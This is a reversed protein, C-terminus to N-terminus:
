TLDRGGCEGWSNLGDLEEICSHRVLDRDSKTFYVLRVLPEQSGGPDFNYADSWGLTRWGLLWCSLRAKRGIKIQLIGTSFFSVKM